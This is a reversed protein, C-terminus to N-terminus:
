KKEVKLVGVEAHMPPLVAKYCVVIGAGGCHITVTGGLSLDVCESANLRGSGSLCCAEGSVSVGNSPKFVLKYTGPGLRITVTGTVNARFPYNAAEIRVTKSSLALTGSALIVVAGFVFLLAFFVIRRRPYYPRSGSM